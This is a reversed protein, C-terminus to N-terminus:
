AKGMLKAFRYLITVMQERTCYDPWMYNVEGTATKLDSGEIIGNKIAWNRAEKSWSGANNTRLSTRYANLMKNFEAQTMTNSGPNVPTPTPTPVPTPVVVPTKLEQVRKYVDQRFQDMSYNLNLQKILHGVDAHNSAVGLKYGESHSIIVGDQLPNLDHYVCLQAFVEVAIKFNKMVFETAASKNSCTFTAGSTYKICAPETMEIGIYGNNASYAKGKTGTGSHWGRHAYGPRSTATTEMCPLTIICGDNDIFGHVCARTYSSKNWNRYFVEKSPQPCGVSHLMLGTVKITEKNNAYCPNNTMYRTEIIGM